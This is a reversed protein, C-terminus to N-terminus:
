QFITYDGNVCVILCLCVSLGYFRKLTRFQAVFFACETSSYAYHSETSVTLRTRLYALHQKFHVNNAEFKGIMWVKGSSNKNTQKNTHEKMHFLAFHIQRTTTKALKKTKLRASSYPLLYLKLMRRILFTKKKRLDTHLGFSNSIKWEHWDWTEFSTIKFLRSRFSLKILDLKHSDFCFNVYIKRLTNM